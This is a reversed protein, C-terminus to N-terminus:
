LAPLSKGDQRRRGSAPNLIFEGCLKREVKVEEFEILGKTWPPHLGRGSFIVPTNRQRERFVIWGMVFCFGHGLDEGCDSEREGHGAGDEGGVALDGFAAAAVLGLLGAFVACMGAADSGGFVALHARLAVLLGCAPRRFIGM